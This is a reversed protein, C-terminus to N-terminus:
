VVALIFALPVDIRTDNGVLQIKSKEFNVTRIGSDNIDSVIKFVDLNKILSPAHKLIEIEDKSPNTIYWNKVELYRISEGM